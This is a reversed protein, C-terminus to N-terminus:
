EVDSPFDMDSEDSPSDDDAEDVASGSNGISGADEDGDDYSSSPTADAIRTWVFFNDDPAFCVRMNGEEFLTNKMDVVATKGTSGGRLKEVQDFVDTTPFSLDEVFSFGPVKSISSDKVETTKLTLELPEGGEGTGLQSTSATTTMTSQARGLLADFVSIQLVVESKLTGGPYTSGTITQKVQAVNKFPIGDTIKFVAEAFSSDLVPSEMGDCVKRFGWFFPSSRYPSESAYLLQWEGDLTKSGPAHEVSRAFAEAKRQQAASASQGRDTAASIELLETLSGRTAGVLSHRHWVRSRVTSFAHTLPSLLLLLLFPLGISQAVHRCMIQPIM